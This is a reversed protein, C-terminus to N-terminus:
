ADLKKQSKLAALMAECVPLVTKIEEESCEEFILFLQHIAFNDNKLEPYFVEWPDIKLVRLLPFLVAMKPNGHYNEINMVTRSDIGAEEAVQQQTMSLHKRARKVTDGLSREYELM